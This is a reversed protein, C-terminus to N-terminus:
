LHSSFAAWSTWAGPGTAFHTPCSRQVQTYKESELDTKKVLLM